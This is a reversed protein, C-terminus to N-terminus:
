ETVNPHPRRGNVCARCAAIGSLFDDRLVSETLPDGSIKAKLRAIIDLGAMESQRQRFWERLLRKVRNRGVATAIHRKSVILGLRAQGLDNPAASVDLLSGRWTCRFHFVSSFEDARRLKKHWGFEQDRVDPRNAVPSGDLRSRGTGAPVKSLWASAVRPVVPM